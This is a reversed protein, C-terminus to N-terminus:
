CTWEKLGLTREFRILRIESAKEAPVVGYYDLSCRLKVGKIEGPIPRGNSASTHFSHTRHTVDERPIEYPRTTM